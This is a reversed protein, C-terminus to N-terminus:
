AGRAGRAVPAVRASRSSRASRVATKPLLGAHQLRMESHLLHVSAAKRAAKLDRAAIAEVINL